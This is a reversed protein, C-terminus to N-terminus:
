SDILHPILCADFPSLFQEDSVQLFSIKLWQLYISLAKSLFLHFIKQQGFALATPILPLSHLNIDKEWPTVPMKVAFSYDSLKM